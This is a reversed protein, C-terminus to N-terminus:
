IMIFTSKAVLLFWLLLTVKGINEDIEEFLRDQIDPHLSLEYALWSMTIATTDYGATMFVTSNVLIEEDSLGSSYFSNSLQCFKPLYRYSEM